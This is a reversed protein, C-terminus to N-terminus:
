AYVVQVTIPGGEAGVHEMREGYSRPAIKSAMWKRTDVRLKDRQVAVATLSQLIREKDDDDAGKVAELMAEIRAAADDGVGDAIRLADEAIAHAQDERARAYMNALEKDDRTWEFLATRSFGLERAVDQVLEGKAIRECLSAVLAQRNPVPKRGRKRPATQHRPPKAM